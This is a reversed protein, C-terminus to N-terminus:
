VQRHLEISARKGGLVDMAQQADQPRIVTSRRTAPNVCFHALTSPAIGALGRYRQANFSAPYQARGAACLAVFEPEIFGYVLEGTATNIVEGVPARVMHVQGAVLLAPMHRQFFLLMLAGCHIGDADPDMLLVIREYRRAAPEFGAGVGAGIAEILAKFLPNDLVKAASAKAANLPKGQMPLVAQRQPDCLQAVASSASDGEVILLEAGSHAGHQLCDHLKPPHSNFIL